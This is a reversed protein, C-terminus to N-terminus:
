SSLSVEAGVLRRPGEPREDLDVAPADDGEADEDRGAGTLLRLVVLESDISGLPYPLGIWPEEDPPPMGDLTGVLGIAVEEPSPLTGTLNVGM